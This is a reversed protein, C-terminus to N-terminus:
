VGGRCEVTKLWPVALNSFLAFECNGTGPFLDGIYGNAFYIDYLSGIWGRSGNASSVLGIPSLPWNLTIENRKPYQEILTAGVFGESTLYCTTPVSAVVTYAKATGNLLAVTTGAVSGANYANLPSLLVVSSDTWQSIPNKPKDILWMHIYFNTCEVLFVRTCEGDTSMMVHLTYDATDTYGNVLNYGGTITSIVVQDTATPVDTTVLGTLTYGASPSFTFAGACTSTATAGYNSFCISFNSAIASQRLVIWSFNTGNTLDALSNWNDSTNAVTANSSAEVVWPYSNTVSLNDADVWGSAITLAKKIEFMLQQGTLAGNAKGYLIINPKFIWTKDKTPMAM